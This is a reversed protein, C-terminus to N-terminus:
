SKKSNPEKKREARPDKPEEPNNESQAAVFLLLLLMAGFGIAGLSVYMLKIDPQFKFEVTHPGASLAVGRMIFNAHLITDQRSDVFVKWDPDYRDNLLLLSPFAAETKLVIDAPRYSDFTVKGEPENTGGTAKPPPVAESVLVTKHPDFAPSAMKDLTAQENTSVEWTPYLKARPLAGTFEIVAFKGAPNTVATLEELREPRDIGPKGMIDFGLANRFRKKEPDLQQNMGEVFGAPGLFYRTDTLEWYRIINRGVTSQFAVLDEPPRAMQVVDLSQINEYLFLHQSWELGYLQSLLSYEPPFRFPLIAVRHEYPKQRLMELVPNTAYKEKIDWFRGPYVWPVNARCLDVLLVTGLLIGAWKARPGCFAGSVILVFTGAAVVYFLVFWGVQRISFGAIAKALSDDFQVDQLYHELSQRSSAYVLWGLLSLALAIWCGIVWKRDFGRVKAWWTKLRTTLDVGNTGPVEVYRRLLGHFGYGLMIQFALGFWYGFKAPNRINNFYPLRYVLRYFPAYRGFALLISVISIGICFWLVKREPLTFVSGEKRLSQLAAWLIMMAVLVGMYGGGGTHRIFGQPPPGQKGSAFWRDWNADRGNRGWYNGGDPSELRYGFIGPIVISLFEGKPSSWQTAWDYRQEPTMLDREGHAGRVGAIATKFQVNVVQAAMFFAFVTIVAVGGFGEAVRKATSGERTLGWWVGFAAIFVSILAGVDAGEMVVMGTALGALVFRVWRWRPPNSVIAGLALFCWGAALIQQGVGWIATSFFGSNLAVALGGLTCATPSLKLERFFFWACCGLFLVVLAPFFKAWYVPGLIWFILQSLDPMATGASTGISNLDSWQGAYGAPLKVADQTMAGLPGDNSFFVTDPRLCPAFFALLIGFLCLLFILFPHGSARKQSM